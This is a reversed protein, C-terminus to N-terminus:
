IYKNNPYFSVIKGEKFLNTVETQYRSGVRIEGKDALLTKQSPDFVLCYFFADQFLLSMHILIYKIICLYVRNIIIAIECLMKLHFVFNEEMIELSLQSLAITVSRTVTSRDCIWMDKYISHRILGQMYLLLCIAPFVSMSVLYSPLHM